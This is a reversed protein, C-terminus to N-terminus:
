FPSLIKFYDWSGLVNQNSVYLIKKVDDLVSPSLVTSTSELRDTLKAIRQNETDVMYLDYSGAQILIRKEDSSINRIVPLVAPASNLDIAVNSIVTVGSGDLNMKYLRYVKDYEDDVM